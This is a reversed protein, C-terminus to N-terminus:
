SSSPRVASDTDTDRVCNRLRSTQRDMSCQWTGSASPMTYSIYMFPQLSITGVNCLIATRARAGCGTCPKRTSTRQLLAPGHYSILTMFLEHATSTPCGHTASLWIAEQLSRDVATFVTVVECEPWRRLFHPQTLWIPPHYSSVSSLCM